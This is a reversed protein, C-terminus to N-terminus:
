KVGANYIFIKKELEVYDARVHGQGHTCIAKIFFYKAATIAFYLYKKV